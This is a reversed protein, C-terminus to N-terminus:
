FAKGAEGLFKGAVFYSAAEMGTEPTRWEKTGIIQERFPIQEIAVESIKESLTKKPIDYLGEKPSIKPEGYFLRKLESPMEKITEPVAALRPYKAAWPKTAEAPKLEDPLMGLPVETGKMSKLEDPILNLPVEGTM